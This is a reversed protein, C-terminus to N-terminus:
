LFSVFPVFQDVVREVLEALQTLYPSVAQGEVIKPERFAIHFTVEIKTHDKLPNSCPVRALIDGNQLFVPKGPDSFLATNASVEWNVEGIQDGLKLMEAIGADAIGYFFSGSRAAAVILLQHKDLNDLQSLSGLGDYGSHYPQTAEILPVVTGAIDEVKRQSGSAYDAATRFIPWATYRTPVRHNAEVLRCALHDLASRLNHVCDGTILPIADPIPTRFRIRHVEDGTESDDEVVTTNRNNEHFALSQIELEHIHHKAWEIKARVGLLPDVAM